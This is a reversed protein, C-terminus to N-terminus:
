ETVPSTYLMNTKWNSTKWTKLEHDWPVVLRTKYMRDETMAATDEAVIRKRENTDFKWDPHKYRMIDLSSPRMNKSIDVSVRNYRNGEYLADAYLRRQEENSHQHFSIRSTDREVELSLTRGADDFHSLECRVLIDIDDM